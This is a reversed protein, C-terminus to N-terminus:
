GLEAMYEELEKAQNPSLCKKSIDKVLHNLRDYGLRYEEEKEESRQAGIVSKIIYPLMEWKSESIAYDLAERTGLGDEVAECLSKSISKAIKYEAFSQGQETTQKDALAPESTFWLTVVMLFALVKCLMRAM